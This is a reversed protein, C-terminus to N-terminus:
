KKHFDLSLFLKLILPGLITTVISLSIISTVLVPDLLDLSSSTFTIALATTLHSVSAIGFISANINSFKAIKGGIFGSIFKSLISGSVITLIVLGAVSVSTFVFFDMEMGVIFFFIPVFLGYGLTHFKSYIEHSKITRSLAVGVIFAALIAHVGLLSFYALVAITIVMVFRLQTEHEIGSLTKKKTYFKILKPIVLFIAVVSVALVLFHLPLALKATPSVRQLVVTFLVLGVADAIMISAIIAQGLDKKLVGASKLAPLAMVVSSSIFIIGVILSEMFSYGFLHVIIFGVLLPISINFFSMVAVQKKLHGIQGLDTELGAMLMIFTMGLFGFFNIIENSEIYGLLNPGLVAGVLIISTVFPIKLKKFMEPVVLGLTLIILLGLLTSEPPIM